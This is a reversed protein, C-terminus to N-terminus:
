PVVEVALITQAVRREDPRHPPQAVIHEHNGQIQWQLRVLVLRHAIRRNEEAPDIDKQLLLQRQEAPGRTPDVLNEICARQQVPRRPLRPHRVCPVQAFRRNRHEFALLPPLHFLQVAEHVPQHLRFVMGVHDTQGIDQQATQDMPDLFPQACRDDAQQLIFVSKEIPQRTRIGLPRPLDDALTRALHVPEDRDARIERLRHLLSELHLRLPHVDNVHPDVQLIIGRRRIPRGHRCDPKERAHTRFPTQLCQHIRENQQLTSRAQFGTTKPDAPTATRGILAEDPPQSALEIRRAHPM